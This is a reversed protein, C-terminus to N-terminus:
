PLTMSSPDKSSSGDMSTAGEVGTPWRVRSSCHVLLGANNPPVLYGQGFAQRRRGGAAAFSLEKKWLLVKVSMTGPWGTCVWGEFVSFFPFGFLSPSLPSLTLTNNLLQSFCSLTQLKASATLAAALIYISRQRSCQVIEPQGKERAADRGAQLSVSVRSLYASSSGPVEREPMLHM